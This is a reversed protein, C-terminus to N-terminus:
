LITAEQPQLQPQAKERREEEYGSDSGSEAVQRVYHAEEKGRVVDDTIIVDVIDSGPIEFMPDLLIKEQSFFM